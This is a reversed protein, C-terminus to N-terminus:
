STFQLRYWHQSSFATMMDGSLVSILFNGPFGAICFLSNFTHIIVINIPLQAFVKGAGTITSVAHLHTRIMWSVSTNSLCVFRANQRVVFCHLGVATANARSM